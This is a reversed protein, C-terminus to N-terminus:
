HTFLIKANPLWEKIKAQEEESIKNRELRLWKLKKLNKISEPLTKLKNYGLDLKEIKVLIYM